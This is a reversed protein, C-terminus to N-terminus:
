ISNISSLSLAGNLENEGRSWPQRSSIAWKAILGGITSDYWYNHVDKYHKLRHVIYLIKSKVIKIFFLLYNKLQTIDFLKLLIEDKKWTAESIYTIIITFSTFTFRSLLTDTNFQLNGSLATCHKTRLRSPHLRIIMNRISNTPRPSRTKNDPSFWEVRSCIFKIKEVKEM